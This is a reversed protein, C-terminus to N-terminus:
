SSKKINKNKRLPSNPPETAESCKRRVLPMPRSLAKKTRKQLLQDCQAEQDLVAEQMRELEQQKLSAFLEFHHSDEPSLPLLDATAPIEKYINASEERLISHCPEDEQPFQLLM